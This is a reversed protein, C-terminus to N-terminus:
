VFIKERAVQIGEATNTAGGLFVVEREIADIVDSASNYDDLFFAVSASASYTVAGVRVNNLAVNLKNIVDYLFDKM